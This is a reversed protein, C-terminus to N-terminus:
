SEVLNYSNFPLITKLKLIKGNLIWLYEFCLALSGWLLWIVILNDINPTNKYLSKFRYLTKANGHLRVKNWKFTVLYVDSIMTVFVFFVRYRSPSVESAQRLLLEYCWGIKNNFDNSTKYLIFIQCYTHIKWRFL